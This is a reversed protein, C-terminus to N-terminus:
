LGRTDMGQLSYVTTSRGRLNGRVFLPRVVEYYHNNICFMSESRTIDLGYDAEDEFSLIGVIHRVLSNFGEHTTVKLPRSSSLGSRHFAFVYAELKKFQFGIALSFFRRPNSLLSCRAYTGIQRVMESVSGKSEVSLEITKWSLATKKDGEEGPGTQTPLEGIIGVGGPKLSRHSDYTEKVKHGYHHFRLGSLHSQPLHQTATATIKNLLHILPEFSPTEQSFGDVPLRPDTTSSPGEFTLAQFTTELSDIVADVSRPDTYLIGSKTTLDVFYTEGRLEREILSKM